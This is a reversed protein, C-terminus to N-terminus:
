VPPGCRYRGPRLCPRRQTSLHLGAEVEHVTRQLVTAGASGEINDSHISTSARVLDNVAQEGDSLAEVIRLRTPGALTQFVVSQM